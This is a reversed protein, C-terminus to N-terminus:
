IWSEERDYVHKGPIASTSRVISGVSGTWLKTLLSGIPFAASRPPETFPQAFFFTGGDTLDGCWGGPGSTAENVGM